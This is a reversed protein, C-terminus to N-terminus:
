GGPVYVETDPHFSYWGFWFSTHTPIRKLTQSPDETNVLREETVRWTPGASDLLTIPLGAASKDDALAFQQDGREYVRAAQSNASAIVVVQTGGLEDNVVRDWQLESVPYAKHADGLSLGLVVDKTDLADSRNWVPFMTDVENRYFFYISRPNSEPQYLEAPYLGTDLELVTTDPHQELWEEWTTLEVPFFPLKIGSDALPGIVPEGTFQHWLSETARDYM